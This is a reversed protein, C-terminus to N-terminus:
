SAVIMDADGPPPASAEGTDASQRGPLVSQSIPVADGPVRCQPSATVPIDPRVRAREWLIGTVLDMGDDWPCDVFAGWSNKSYMVTSM